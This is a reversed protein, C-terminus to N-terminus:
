RLIEGLSNISEDVKKSIEEEKEEFTRRDRKRIWYDAVVLSPQIIPILIERIQKETLTVSKFLMSLRNGFEDEFKTKM